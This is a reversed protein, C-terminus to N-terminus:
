LTLTTICFSWSAAAPGSNALLGVSTISAGTPSFPGGESPTDYGLTNFSAWPITGSPSGTADVEYYYQTGGSTVSIQLGRPPISSVAYSLATGSATVGATGLGIAIGSGYNSFSVNQAATMGQACLANTDVCATSTGDGVAVVYANANNTLTTPVCGELAIAGTVVPASCAISYIPQAANECYAVGSSSSDGTTGDSGSDGGNHAPAAVADLGADAPSDIYTATISGTSTAIEVETVSSAPSGTTPETTPATAFGTSTAMTSGGPAPWSLDLGTRGGCGSAALTLALCLSSAARV